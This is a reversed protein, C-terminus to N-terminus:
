AISEGRLDEARKPDIEGMSIGMKVIFAPLKRIEDDTLPPPAPKKPPPPPSIMKMPPRSLREMVKALERLECARPFFPERKAWDRAAADLMDPDIDTCDEALLAVRAAHAERDVSNAPPYRLGLKGIIELTRASPLPRRESSPLRQTPGLDEWASLATGIDTTNDEDMIAKGHTTSPAGARAPPTNSCGGLHGSTM